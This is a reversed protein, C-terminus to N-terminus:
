PAPVTFITVDDVQRQNWGLTAIAAVMAANAGPGAVVYHAGNQEAYRTFEPLFDSEMVNGFM